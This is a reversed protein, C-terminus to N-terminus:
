RKVCKNISDITYRVEEVTNNHSFSFRITGNPFTGLTRHSSPSCHLGCRTMIGYDNSLYHSVVGNDLGWPTLDISVVATRNKISPIGILKVEKINKLEEIFTGTLYLEKKRIADLGVENLYKLSSNLGFIGPINPTGAEFKDPMYFPQIEEESFSGTGGEILPNVLSALKDTIIFGGIGQPGLLSKHGTFAIADACLLDFDMDIFGAGQASDIIFLLNHQRCIQGVKELPLITGCVNSACTMIIARTNPKINAIIDNIQLEGIDNCEMKSFEVGNKSISNLPRMVANHEMSSVIIHDGAKFLGKIITNLSETINKNFIVNEPKNFNFLNCIMERTEFVTEEVIYASSYAGRNTSCGVNTIYNCISDAVNPAKPFTTAANDLYVEKM